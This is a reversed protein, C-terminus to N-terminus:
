IARDRREERRKEEFWVKITVWSKIFGWGIRKEGGSFLFFFFPFFSLLLRLSLSPGGFTSCGVRFCNIIEVVIFCFVFLSFLVFASAPSDPIEWWAESNKKTRRGAGGRGSWGLWGGTTV